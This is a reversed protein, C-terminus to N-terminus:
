RSLRPSRIGLREHPNGSGVLLTWGFLSPNLAETWDGAMMRIFPVAAPSVLFIESKTDSSTRSFLAADLPAGAAMFAQDFPDQIGAFDGPFPTVAQKWGTLHEKFLRVGAGAGNEPLFIVGAEELARTMASLTGVRPETTGKEINKVSVTSVGAAAALDAQTWGILARAARLQAALIM